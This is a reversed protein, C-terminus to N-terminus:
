WEDIVIDLFSDMDVDADMDIDIESEGDEAVIQKPPSLGKVRAEAADFNDQNFSNFIKESAYLVHRMKCTWKEEVPVNIGGGKVPEQKVGKAVSKRNNKKRQKELDEEASRNMCVYMGVM